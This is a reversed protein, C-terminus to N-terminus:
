NFSIKKEKAGFKKEFKNLNVGVKADGEHGVSNNIECFDTRSLNVYILKM